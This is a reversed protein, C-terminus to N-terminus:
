VGSSAFIRWLYSGIILSVGIVYFWGQWPRYRALQTKVEVLVELAAKKSNAADDISVNRWSEINGQIKELQQRTYVDRAGQVLLLVFGSVGILNPWISM